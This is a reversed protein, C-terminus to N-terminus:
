KKNCSGNKFSVILNNLLIYALIFIGMIITFILVFDEMSSVGSFSERFIYGIMVFVFVWVTGGVLNFIFFKKYGVGECGVVFPCISRTAPNMKGVILTRGSYKRGVRKIRSIVHKRIFGEESFIKINNKRGLFYGINDALISSILAVLMVKWLTFFGAATLIGSIILIIAGGPVFLGVFPLSEVFIALFVVMYGLFSSVENSMYLLSNAFDM